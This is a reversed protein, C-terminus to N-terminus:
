SIVHILFVNWYEAKPIVRRFPIPKGPVESLTNGQINWRRTKYGDGLSLMNTAPMWSLTSVRDGVLQEQRYRCHLAPVDWFSIGTQTDAAALTRGNPSFALGDIGQGMKPYPRPVIASRLPVHADRYNLSLNLAATLVLLALASGILQNRLKRPLTNSM